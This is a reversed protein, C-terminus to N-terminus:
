AYSIYKDSNSNKLYGYWLSLTKKKLRAIGSLETTCTSLSVVRLIESEVPSGIEVSDSITLTTEWLVVSVKRSLVILSGIDKFGSKM